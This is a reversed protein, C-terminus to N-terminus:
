AASGPSPLSHSRKAASRLAVFMLLIWGASALGPLFYAIAGNWDM